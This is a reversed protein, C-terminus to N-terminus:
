KDRMPVPAPWDTRLQGRPLRPDPADPAPRLPPAGPVGRSSFAASENAVFSRRKRAAPGSGPQPTQAAGTPLAAYRIDTELPAALEKGAYGHEVVFRM